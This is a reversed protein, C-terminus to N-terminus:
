PSCASYYVLDQRNDDHGTLVEGPGGLGPRCARFTPACGATCLRDKLAGPATPGLPLATERKRSTIQVNATIYENNTGLGEAVVTRDRRKHDKPPGGPRAALVGQGLLAEGGDVGMRSGSLPAARM